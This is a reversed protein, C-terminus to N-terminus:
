PRFRGLSRGALQPGRAALVGTGSGRCPGRRRCCIGSVRGPCCATNGCGPGCRQVPPTLRCGLGAWGLRHPHPHPQLPWPALWPRAASPSPHPSNKERQIPPCGPAGSVSDPPVLPVTHPHWWWPGCPQARSRSRSPHSPFRRGVAQPHCPGGGGTQTRGAKGRYPYNSGRSRALTHLPFLTFPTRHVTSLRRPCSGLHHGSRQGARSRAGQAASSSGWGVPCGRYTSGPPDAM